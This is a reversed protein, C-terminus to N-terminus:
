YNTIYILAFFIGVWSSVIWIMFVLVIGYFFFKKNARIFLKTNESLPLSLKFRKPKQAAEFKRKLRSMILSAITNIIFTMVFLVIALTFLAATHTGTSEGMEIAITGTITTICTFM